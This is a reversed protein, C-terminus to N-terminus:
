DVNIYLLVTVQVGALSTATGAFDVSLKDGAILDLIGATTKFIAQQVTNITAKMDFGANTNNALLDTGAGPADGTADKTIQLSVASGDTGLITHIETAALVQCPFPAVFFCTDTGFAASPQNWTVALLHDSRVNMEGAM